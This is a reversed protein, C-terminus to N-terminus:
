LCYLIYHYLGIWIKKLSVCFPYVTSRKICCHSSPVWFGICKNWLLKSYFTWIMVIIHNPFYSPIFAFCFCNVHLIEMDWGRWSILSCLVWCLTVLLNVVNNRVCVDIWYGVFFRLYKFIGAGIFCSSAIIGFCCQYFTALRGM